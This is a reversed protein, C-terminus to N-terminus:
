GTVVTTHDITVWDDYDCSWNRFSCSQQQDCFSTILMCVIGTSFIDIIKFSLEGWGKKLIELCFFFFFFYTNKLDVIINATKFNHSIKRHAQLKM